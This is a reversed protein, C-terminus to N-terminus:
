GVQCAGSASLFLEEDQVSVTKRVILVGEEIKGHSRGLLRAPVVLQPQGSTDPRGSGATV